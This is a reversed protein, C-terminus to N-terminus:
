FIQNLQLQLNATEDNDLYLTETQYGPNPVIQRQTNIVMLNFTLSNNSEANQALISYSFPNYLQTYDPLGYEWIIMGDVLDVQFVSIGVSSGVM